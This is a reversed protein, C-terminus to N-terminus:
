SMCIFGFVSKKKMLFDSVKIVTESNQFNESLEKKKNQNIWIIIKGHLDGEYMRIWLLFKSINASFTVNNAWEFFYVDDGVVFCVGDDGVFFNDSDIM